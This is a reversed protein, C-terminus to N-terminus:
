KDTNKYKTNTSLYTGNSVSGVMEIGIYNGYIVEIAKFLESARALEGQDTYQLRSGKVLTSL